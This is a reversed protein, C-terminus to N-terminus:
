YSWPRELRQSMKLKRCHRETLVPRVQLGCSFSLWIWFSDRNQTHSSPSPSEPDLYMYIYIYAEWTTSTTFFGGALASSMLSSPEIGPDPLDGPPPCPWGSQYKHRSFGMSLPAQCDVAWPTAFLQVCSFCNLVAHCVHTRACVCVCVCVCM